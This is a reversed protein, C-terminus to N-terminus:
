KKFVHKKGFFYNLVTTIFLMVGKGVMESIGLVEVIVILGFFDVIGVLGRTWAFRSIEIFLKKLSSNKSKFVFHKNTIFAFIKTLVLSIFNSIKYETGIKVLLAFSIYSFLVTIIGWFSYRLIENLYDTGNKNKDKRLARSLATTIKIPLLQLIIRGFKTSCCKLCFLFVRAQMRDKLSQAGFTIGYSPFNNLSKARQAIDKKKYKILQLQTKLIDQENSEEISISGQNKMDCIVNYAKLSRVIIRSGKKLEWADGLSLDSFEGTLDYCKWCREPSFFMNLLTYGHKDVFFEKNDKGTILFGTESDKVGRYQLTKIDSIRSKRVLFETAEKIMNFGCFLSITMFIKERLYTNIEMAKQLGQIQCPLGIYLFKGDSKLIKNIIENTPILTYKSGMAKYVEETTRLIAPKFSANDDPIIGIVGDIVGHKLLYCAIATAIGGPLIENKSDTSYGKYITLYSGLVPSIDGIQKKYINKNYKIYDFCKGPCSAVCSGCSVCKKSQFEFKDGHITITNTPCVGVCTGCLCCLKKEIIDEKLSQWDNM